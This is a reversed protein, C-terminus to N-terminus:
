GEAGPLKSILSARAAVASLQLADRRTLPIRMAASRIGLRLSVEEAGGLCGAFYERGARRRGRFHVLRPQPPDNRSGGGAIREHSGANALDRRNRQPVHLGDFCM